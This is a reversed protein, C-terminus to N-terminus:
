EFAFVRQVAPKEYEAGGTIVRLNPRKIIEGAGHTHGCLVVFQHDPHAEAVRLLVDGVAKCTFHPLFGDDDAAQVGQHWCAEQFPPAHTLIYIQHYHPVAEHLIRSLYNAAEDGLTHLRKLREQPSIGSLSRIQVYDNLLIDSQLFDGYRGDGWGGHGVLATDDALAVVGVEPLWVPGLNQRTLDRMQARVDPIDSGYYDHNGLVFCVPVQLRQAVFVLHQRLFHSTSIDGSILVVDPQQAAVQHLFSEIQPPRLFELHIDTLWVARTM